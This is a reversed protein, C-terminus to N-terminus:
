PLFQRPIDVHLYTEPVVGSIITDVLSVHRNVAVEFSQVPNIIRVVAEVNLWVAFHVQNIGVATFRSDYNVLANGIPAMTFTFHPGVQALTDLGFAMGIPVSVIEPELNNLRESIRMAAINCMDNVLVTNVSLVPGGATADMRQTYFDAATIRNERIIEQIVDNIVNNIDTQLKLEAADLVLPLITRDFRYFSYVFAGLLLLVMALAIYRRPIRLPKRNRRWIHYRQRWSRRIRRRRM